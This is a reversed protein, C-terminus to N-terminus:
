LAAKDRLRALITARVMPSDDRLTRLKDPSLLRLEGKANEFLALREAAPMDLYQQWLQDSFEQRELEEVVQHSQQAQVKQAKKERVAPPEYGAVQQYDDEIAKRLWGMPNRALLSSKSRVLEDFMDVKAAIRDPFEQALRAALRSSFGREMLLSRLAALQPNASAPENLAKAKAFSYQVFWTSRDESWRYTWKSLFGHEELERHASDLMQKIQSAYRRTSLDIGLNVEALTYIDVDFVTSRYKRKDLYRYLRKTLTSSLSNYLTMDLRKMNGVQMSRFFKENFSVHTLPMELQGAKPAAREVIVYDDILGFNLSTYSKRSNDWFSNKALIRVGALRELSAEFRQYNRGNPAWSLIQMLEYRSFFVQRDQLGRDSALKLLALLVDDDGARPLGHKDSGTVTWVQDLKTGNSLFVTQKREITKQQKTNRDSALGLAFEALNMEDRGTLVPQTKPTPALLQEPM